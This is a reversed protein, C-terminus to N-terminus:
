MSIPKTQDRLSAYADFYREGMQYLAERSFHIADGGGFTQDNSALGESGLFAAHGASLCVDRMAQLIPRCLDANMRIWHPVFEMAVFPLGPGGFADRVAGILASLNARHIEYGAQNVADTEGQHWLLAVPINGPNLSLATRTMRMMRLFLPDSLGWQGDTFGTGGVAARVILLKRGPSLCGAAIYRRAFSLAFNGRIVNQHVTEAAREIVMNNQLYWVDDSVTYPDPADGYGTGESNSQGAQIVVDFLDQSFDHLM